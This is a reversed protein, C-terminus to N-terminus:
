VTVVTFSISAEYSGPLADATSETSAITTGAHDTGGTATAPTITITTSDSRLTGADTSTFILYKGTASDYAISSASSAVSSIKVIASTNSTGIFNGVEMFFNYNTLANTKYGYVFTPPTDFANDVTIGGQYQLSGIEFGHLMYEGATARLIATVPSVTLASFASGLVFVLIVLVALMRKKNM